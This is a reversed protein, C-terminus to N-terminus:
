ISKTQPQSMIKNQPYSMAKNNIKERKKNVGWKVSEKRGGKGSIGM